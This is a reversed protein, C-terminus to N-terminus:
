CGFFSGRACAPCQLLGLLVHGVSWVSCRSLLMSGALVAEKCMSSMAVTTLDSLVSFVDGIFQVCSSIHFHVFLSRMVQAEEDEEYWQMPGASAAWAFLPREVEM